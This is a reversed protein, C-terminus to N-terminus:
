IFFVGIALTLAFHATIRGDTFEGGEVHSATIAGVRNGVVLNSFYSRLYFVVRMQSWYRIFDSKLQTRWLSFPALGVAYGERSRGM